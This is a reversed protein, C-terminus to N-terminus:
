RGAPVKISPALDALPRQDGRGIRATRGNGPHASADMVALVAEAMRRAAGQHLAAYATSASAMAARRAADGALEIAVAVGAPLDAVRQAAGAQEALAAAEAFNFTHPGMVVPCGCAAAEILNQGGLPAYSGGLLAVDALAYYAPMERMSDGLWVDARGAQPDPPESWGSRRSLSLGHAQVLAAVEDFRQPHRPV